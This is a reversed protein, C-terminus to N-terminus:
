VFSTCHRSAYQGIALENLAEERDDTPRARAAHQPRADHPTPRPKALRRAQRPRPTAPHTQPALPWVTALSAIMPLLFGAGIVATVLAGGWWVADPSAALVEAGIAPGLALGATAM